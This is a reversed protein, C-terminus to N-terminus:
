TVHIIPGAPMRRQCTENQCPGLTVVESHGLTDLSVLNSGRILEADPLSSMHSPGSVRHIESRGM